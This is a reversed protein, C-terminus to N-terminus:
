IYVVSYSAPLSQLLPFIPDGFYSQFPYVYYMLPLGMLVFYKALGLKHRYQKLLNATALWLLLFSTLSFVDFLRSLLETTVSPSFNVVYSVIPYSSVDPKVSMSFFADLYMLSVVLTIGVLLFAFTFIGVTYNRKSVLWKGFMFILFSLIVIASIHSVYSQVRLLTISYQNVFFIQLIILSVLSITLVLTTIIIINSYRLGKKIPAYSYSNLINKVSKLLVPSLAAFVIFITVFMIINLSESAELGSYSSIAVITSDFVIVTMIIM